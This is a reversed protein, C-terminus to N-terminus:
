VDPNGGDLVRAIEKMAQAKQEASMNPHISEVHIASQMRRDGMEATVARRLEELMAPELTQVLESFKSNM